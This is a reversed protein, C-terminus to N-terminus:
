IAFLLTKPLPAEIQASKSPTTIHNKGSPFHFVLPFHICHADKVQNRTSLPFHFTAVLLGLKSLPSSSVVKWKLGKVREV